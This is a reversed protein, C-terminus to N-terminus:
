AIYPVICSVDDVKEEVRSFETVTQVVACVTVSATYLSDLPTPSDLRYYSTDLKYYSIDLKYYSINLKYYSIVHAKM